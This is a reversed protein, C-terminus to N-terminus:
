GLVGANRLATYAANCVPYPEHLDALQFGDPLEVISEGAKKIGHTLEGVAAQHAFAELDNKTAGRGPFKATYAGIM